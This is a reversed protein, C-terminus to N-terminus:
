LSCAWACDDVGLSKTVVARTYVRAVVFFMAFVLCIANAAILKSARTEPHDFNPITGPPPKQGPINYLSMPPVSM